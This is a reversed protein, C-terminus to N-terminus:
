LYHIVLGATRGGDLRHVFTSRPPCHGPCEPPNSFDIEVVTLAASATVGIVAARVGLEVAPREEAVWDDIGSWTGGVDRVHVESRYMRRYTSAEPREHVADYFDTWAARREAEVRRQDHRPDADDDFLAAALRAHARNLRSRVTGVPVGSITGIAQYSASRTFHRLMVSLREEESLSSLAAWIRDRSRADAFLQEPDPLPDARDPLEELLVAHNRRLRMRCTNRMVAHLWGAIAHGDRVTAIHTMAAIATDQVVDAAEDRDRLLGIAAAYLGARHRELLAALASLDGRQAQTVLEADSRDDGTVV